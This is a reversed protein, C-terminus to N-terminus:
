LEKFNSDNKNVCKDNFVRIYSWKVGFKLIAIYPIYLFIQETIWMRFNLCWRVFAYKYLYTMVMLDCYVLIRDLWNLDKYYLRQKKDPKVDAPFDFDFYEYGKVNALRKTMYVVSGKTLAMDIPWLGEFLINCMIDFVENTNRLAPEFVKRMVIDLRLRTESWNEGCVNYEDKIGLLYGLVRWVHTFSEFFEIDNLHIRELGLILFGIFSFQTIAMDKQTIRGAGLKHCFRSSRCHSKRVAELSIWFKSTRHKPSYKYWSTILISTRIVRHYAKASSCPKGTCMLVNLITPIALVSILGAMM